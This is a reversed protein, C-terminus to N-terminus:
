LIIQCMRKFDLHVFKRPSSIEKLVLNDDQVQGFLVSGPTKPDSKMAVVNSGQVDLVTTNPFDLVKYSNKELNILMVNNLGDDITNWQHDM